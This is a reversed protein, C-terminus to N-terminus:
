TGNVNILETPSSTTNGSRIDKVLQTGAATGDSKWLEIGHTGDDATFFATGNVDVFASPISGTSGPVIDLAMHPALSPVLRDELVELRLPLRSFRRRPAAPRSRLARSPRLLEFRM